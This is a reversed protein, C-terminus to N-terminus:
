NPVPLSAKAAALLLDKPVLVRYDPNVHQFRVTGGGDLIFVAPVPLVPRPRTGASAAFKSTDVKFAIGFAKILDLSHDSLLTYGIADKASRTRLAAPPDPTIAIIQYGLAKLDSEILRLESLQLDCYPCWGGRHFILLAARGAMVQPLTTSSGQETQVIVSNPARAGILLPRVEEPRNPLDESLAWSPAILALLFVAIPIRKM